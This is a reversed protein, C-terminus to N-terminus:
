GLLRQLIRVETTWEDSGTVTFVPRIWQMFAKFKRVQSDPWPNSGATDDILVFPTGADDICTVWDAAVVSNEDCTEITLIVQGAGSAPGNQVNWYVVFEDYILTDSATGTTTATITITDKMDIQRNSTTM